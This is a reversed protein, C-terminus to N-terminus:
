EVLAIRRLRNPISTLSANIGVNSNSSIEMTRAVVATWPTASLGTADSHHVYEHYPVYVTGHISVHSGSEFRVELKEEDLLAREQFIAIGAYYGTQMASLRMTAGSKVYIRCKEPGSSCNTLGGNYIFVGDGQLSTDSGGVVLGGRNSTGVLIYEGPQLTVSGKKIEIGGCYIGPSLTHTSTAQPLDITVNTYNCGSYTPPQLWALPDPIAPEGTDPTPSVTSGSLAQYDGTVDIDTSSLLSGSTVSLASSSTSNVQVGCGADLNTNSQIDFAASANPHLVYICNSDNATGAVARARITTQNFNGGGPTLLNLLSAFFTQHQQTILAEVYGINGAYTGSTPPQNIAVTINNSGQTFGNEASGQRALNEVESPTVDPNRKKELAGALAASDAATQM